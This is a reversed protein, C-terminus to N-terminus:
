NFSFKISGIVKGLVGVDKEELIFPDHKERNLPSLIVKGNSKSYEKITAEFDGAGDMRVAVVIDRNNVEHINVKKILAFDNEELYPSMSDGTVRLLYTTEKSNGKLLRSPVKIEGEINENVFLFNGGPATGLIPISIKADHVLGDDNIDVDSIIEISRSLYSSRKIVLKDELARLIELVKRTSLKLEKSIQRIAPASEHQFGYDKIFFYVEKEKPELRNMPFM